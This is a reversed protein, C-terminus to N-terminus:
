GLKKPRGGARNKRMAAIKRFYETGRQATKEGGLKGLTAAPVSAPSALLDGSLRMAADLIERLSEIGGLPIPDSSVIRNAQEILNKLTRIDSRKPM